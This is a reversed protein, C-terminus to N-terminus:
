NSCLCGDLVEIQGAQSVLVTKEKSNQGSKLCMRISSYTTASAQQSASAYSYIKADPDPRKFTIDQIANTVNTETNDNFTCRQSFTIDAPLRYQSVMEGSDFKRDAEVKDVFLLYSSVQGAAINMGFAQKFDDGGIVSEKSALGYTQMERISLAVEDAVNSLTVNNGFRRYNAIFLATVVTFIMLVILLELLTFGARVCFSGSTTSRKHM